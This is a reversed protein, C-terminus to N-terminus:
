PQLHRIEHIFIVDGTSSQESFLLENQGPRLHESRINVTGNGVLYYFAKRNGNVILYPVLRPNYEDIRCFIPIRNSATIMDSPVTFRVVASETTSFRFTQKFPVALDKWIHTEAHSASVPISSFFSMFFLASLQAIPTRSKRYM